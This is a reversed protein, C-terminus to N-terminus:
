GQNLTNGSTRNQGTVIREWLHKLVEAAIATQMSISYDMETDCGVMGSTGRSGVFHFDVTPDLERFWGKLENPEISFDVYADTKATHFNAVHSMIFSFHIDM